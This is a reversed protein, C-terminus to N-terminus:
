NFTVELGMPVGNEDTGFWLYIDQHGHQGWEVTRIAELDTRSPGLDVADSFDFRVTVDVTEGDGIAFSRPQGYPVVVLNAYFRRRTGGDALSELIEQQFQSLPRSSWTAEFRDDEYDLRVQVPEPFWDSRVFLVNHTQDYQPFGDVRTDAHHRAIESFEPYRYLHDGDFGNGEAHAGYYTDDIVVGNRFLNVEFFDITFVGVADLYERSIEPAYSDNLEDFDVAGDSFLVIDRAAPHGSQVVVYHSWDANGHGSAFGGTQVPEGPRHHYAVIELEGFYLAQVSGSAGPSRTADGERFLVRIAGAQGSGLLNCGALVAVVLVGTTVRFLWQRM